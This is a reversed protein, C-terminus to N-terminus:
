GLFLEQGDVPQMLHSEALVGQVERVDLADIGRGRAAHHGTGFLVGFELFGEVCSGLGELFGEFVVEFFEEGPFNGGKGQAFEVHFTFGIPKPAADVFDTEM